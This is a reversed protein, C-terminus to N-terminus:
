LAGRPPPPRPPAFFALLELCAEVDGDEALVLLPKCLHGNATHLPLDDVEVILSGGGDDGNTAGM